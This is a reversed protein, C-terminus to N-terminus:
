GAAARCRSGGTSATRVIGWGLVSLIAIVIFVALVANLIVVATM